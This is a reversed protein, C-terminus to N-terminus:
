QIVRKQCDPNNALVYVIVWEVLLSQYIQHRILEFDLNNINLIKFILFIFNYLVKNNPREKTIAKQRAMLEHWFNSLGAKLSNIGSGGGGGNVM